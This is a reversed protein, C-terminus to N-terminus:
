PAATPEPQVPPQMMGNPMQMNPMPPMMQMSRNMRHGRPRDSSNIEALRSKQEPTLTAAMETYAAAIAEIQKLHGQMMAARAAFPNDSKAMMQQHEAHQRGGHSQREAMLASTFKEWVPQQAETIQLYGKARDMFSVPANMGAGEMGAPGMGECAMAVGSSVIGLALVLATLSFQKVM